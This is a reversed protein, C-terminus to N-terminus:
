AGDYLSFIESDFYKEVFHIEKRIQQSTFVMGEPAAVLKDENDDKRRVAGIVIGTFTELPESVGLVYVDQEEGDGGTVGQAYGYNVPYIMDYEPHKSGLPRDVTVKVRFREMNDGNMIVFPVTLVAGNKNKNTTQIKQLQRKM